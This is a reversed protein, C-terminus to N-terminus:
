IFETNKSSKAKLNGIKVLLKEPCFTKNLLARNQAINPCNQDSKVFHRRV